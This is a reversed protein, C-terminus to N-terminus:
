RAPVILPAIFQIFVYIAAGLAIIWFIIQASMFAVQRWYRSLDPLRVAKYVMSLLVSMPILLLFWGRHLNIPDVFPRWALALPAAGALVAAATVPRMLELLIM